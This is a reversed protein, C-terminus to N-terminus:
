HFSLFLDFECFNVYPYLKPHSFDPQDIQELTESCLSTVFNHSDILQGLLDSVFTDGHQNSNIRLFNERLHISYLMYLLKGILNPDPTSSIPTLIQTLIQILPQTTEPTPATNKLPLTSLSKYSAASLHKSYLTQAFAQWHPQPKAFLTTIFCFDELRRFKLSKIMSEAKQTELFKHKQLIEPKDDLLSRFDHKQDRIESISDQLGCIETRVKEILDRSEFIQGKKEGVVEVIDCQGKVIEQGLGDLKLGLM